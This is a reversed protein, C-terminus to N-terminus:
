AELEKRLQTTVVEYITRGGNDVMFPLM